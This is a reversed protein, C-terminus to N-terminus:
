LYGQVRENNKEPGSGGRAIPKNFNYIIQMKPLNEFEKSQMSM